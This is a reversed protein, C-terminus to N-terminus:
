GVTVRKRERRGAPLDIPRRQKDLASREDKEIRTSQSQYLIGM